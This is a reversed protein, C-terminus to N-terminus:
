NARAHPREKTRRLQDLPHRSVMTPLWDCRAIQTACCAMYYYATIGLLYWHACTDAIQFNLSWTPFFAVCAERVYSMQIKEGYSKPKVTFTPFRPVHPLKKWKRLNTMFKKFPTKEIHWLKQLVPRPNETCNKRHSDRLSRWCLTSPGSIITPPGM